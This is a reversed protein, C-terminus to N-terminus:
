ATWEKPMPVEVKRVEDGTATKFTLSTAALALSKDPLPAPAGYKIDGVIPYGMASLQARIQHSRGTGLKIKLISNKGNSKVVEYFLEARQSKVGIPKESIEVKNVNEDKKIYHVLTGREHKPKGIVLAHYIKEVTHERFQESLRSAGKSTKAFLIIGQVPRDLRHILGLFVKGTKHYKTKLYYKVEDMLTGDKTDDAQVLVGAPKYVAILHNDEYLVQLNM